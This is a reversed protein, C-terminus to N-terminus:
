TNSRTIALGSVVYMFELKSLEGRENGKMIGIFIFTTTIFTHAELLARYVHKQRELFQRLGPLSRADGQSGCARSVSAWSGEQPELYPSQVPTELRPIKLNGHTGTRKSRCQKPNRKKQSVDWVMLLRDYFYLIKRNFSLQM